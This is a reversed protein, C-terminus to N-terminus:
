LPTGFFEDDGGGGALHLALAKRWRGSEVASAERHAIRGGPNEALLLGKSNRIFRELAKRDTPRVVCVPMEDVLITTPLM